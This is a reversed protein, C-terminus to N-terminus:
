SHCRKGRRRRKFEVEIIEITLSPIWELYNVEEQTLQNHIDVRGTETNTAKVTYLKRQNSM